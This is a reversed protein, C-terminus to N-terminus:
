GISKALAYAKKAFILSSDSNIEEFRSALIFYLRVKATDSPNANVENILKNTKVRKANTEITTNQSFSLFYFFIFIVSFLIKNYM